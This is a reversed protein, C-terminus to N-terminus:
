RVGPLLAADNRSFARDSDGRAGRPVATFRTWAPLKRDLM